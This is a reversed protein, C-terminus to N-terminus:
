KARTIFGIVCVSYPHGHAVAHLVSCPDVKMAFMYPSGYWQSDPNVAGRDSESIYEVTKLAHRAVMMIKGTIDNTYENTLTVQITIKVPVVDRGRKFEEWIKNNVCDPLDVARIDNSSYFPEYRCETHPILHNMFKIEMVKINNLKEM